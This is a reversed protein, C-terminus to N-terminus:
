EKSALLIMDNHEGPSPIKGVEQRTISFRPAPAPQLEDALFCGRAKVHEHGASQSLPGTQGWGTMRGYVLSPNRELCPEPGLGLRETVGPRFGEILVDSQEVLSLVVEVDAPDKLDLTISQKGRRFFASDTAAGAPAMNDAERAREVLIVEAGLDALMMGAIPCPGLGAIEVIKKGALPGM